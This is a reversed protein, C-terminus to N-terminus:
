PAWGLEGLFVRMNTLMDEEDESLEGDMTVELILNSYARAHMAKVQPPTLEIALKKAHNLERKTMQGDLMAKEIYTFYKEGPSKKSSRASIPGGFVFDEALGDDIAVPMKPVFSQGTGRVAAIRDVRFNRWSPQDVVPDLQWTAIIPNQGSYSLSYAEIHRETVWNEGPKRYTIHAVQRQRSLGILLKLAESTDIAAGM